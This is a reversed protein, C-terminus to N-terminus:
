SRIKHCSCGSFVDKIDFYYTIYCLMWKVRWILKNEIFLHVSFVVNRFICINNENHLFILNHGIIPPARHDVFLFKWELSFYYNASTIVLSTRTTVYWWSIDEDDDDDDDDDFDHHPSVQTKLHVGVPIPSCCTAWTVVTIITIILIIFVPYYSLIM